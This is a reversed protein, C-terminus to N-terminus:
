AKLIKVQLTKRQVEPEGYANYTPIQLTISQMSGEYAVEIPVEISAHQNAKKYSRQQRSGRQGYIQQHGGGFGGGFALYIKLAVIIKDMQVLAKAIFNHAMLATDALKGVLDVQM